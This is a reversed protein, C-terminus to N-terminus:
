WRRAFYQMMLSWGWHVGAAGANYGVLTPVTDLLIGGGRAFHQMMLSGRGYVGAAGANCGLLTPVNDLLM